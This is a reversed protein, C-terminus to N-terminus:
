GEGCWCPCLVHCCAADLAAILRICVHLIGSCVPHCPATSRYPARTRRAVAPVVLRTQLRWCLLASETIPDCFGWKLRILLVGATTNTLSAHREGGHLPTGINNGRRRQPPV